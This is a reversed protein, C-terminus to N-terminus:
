AELFKPNHEGTHHITYCDHQNDHVDYVHGTLMHHHDAYDKCKQLSKNKYVYWGCACDERGIVPVIIQVMYLM